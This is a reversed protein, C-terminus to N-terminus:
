HKEFHDAKFQPNVQYKSIEFEESVENETLFTLKHPLMLGGVKKHDTLRIYFDVEEPAAPAEAHMKKEAEERAKAVDEPKSGAQRTMTMVRPKPGRYSLLLPIHSKKDFFVRVSFNNPGTVDIVDAQTDEVDSEGAYKYEVALSAPPTLIMALLYRSFEAVYIRRQMAEMQEPSIQQGGPGSMRFIMGGGGGSNGSWAKDGNLARTNIMATSLGGANMADEVLYKNPLLISIERDGGMQRDGFTRRYQGKIELGQIKQLQEDGGIAQRAQKLIEQARADDNALTVSTSLLVLSLLLLLNRM